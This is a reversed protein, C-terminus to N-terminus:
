RIAEALLDDLWVGPALYKQKWGPMLADLAMAKGMGLHYFATRDKAARGAHKVLYPRNQYDAKWTDPYGRFDPFATFAATPRYAPMAAARAIRFETYSAVGETWEQMISYEKAKSNPGAADLLSHYVRVGDLATGANYKAEDPDSATSALWLLHGQVHILRMIGASSYPFPFSLQWSGAPAGPQIGLSDIKASGGRADQWAHFMEHCATLVWAEPSQGRAEPRGMAVAKVGEVELFASVEPPLRRQRVQITGLKGASGANGFGSLPQTFGIAYEDNQGVYVIPARVGSAGPWIRDAQTSWLHYAEEILAVERPGLRSDAAKASHLLIAALPIVIRAQLM